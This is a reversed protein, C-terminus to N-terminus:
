DPCAASFQQAAKESEIGDAAPFDFDRADRNIVVCSGPNLGSQTKNGFVALRFSQRLGTRDSVVQGVTM